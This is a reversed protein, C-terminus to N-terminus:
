FSFDDQSGGRGPATLQQFFCTKLKFDFGFVYFFGIRGFHGNFFYCTKQRTFFREGGMIKNLLIFNDQSGVAHHDDVVHNIAFRKVIIVGALHDACKRTLHM